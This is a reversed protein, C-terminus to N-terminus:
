ESRCVCSSLEKVNLQNMCVSWFPSIKGLLVFLPKWIDHCRALSKQYCYFLSWLKSHFPCEVWKKSLRYHRYQATKKKCKYPLGM